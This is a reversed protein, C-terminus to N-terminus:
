EEVKEFVESPMGCLPCVQPPEDGEHVYKCVPCIWKQQSSKEEVQMM